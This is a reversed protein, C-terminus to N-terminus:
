MQKFLNEYQRMKDQQFSPDSNNIKFEGVMASVIRDIVEEKLHIPTEIFPSEPNNEDELEIKGPHKYYSMYVSTVDMGEEVYIKINGSSYTYPAERYEFSPSLIANDIIGARDEDRIEYLNINDTCGDKEAIARAYSWSFFDEPLKFDVHDLHKTGKKLAKDDVLLGEIDKLVDLDRNVLYWKIVRPALENYLLSFKGRDTSFFDNTSNKEVKVIYRTYIETPTVAM